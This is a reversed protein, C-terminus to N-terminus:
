PIDSFDLKFYMKKTKRSWLAIDLGRNTLTTVILDDLFSTTKFLSLLQHTKSEFAM